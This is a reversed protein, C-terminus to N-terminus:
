HRQQSSLVLYVIRMHADLRRRQQKARMGLGPERAKCRQIHAQKAESTRVESTDSCM